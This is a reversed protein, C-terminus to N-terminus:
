EAGGALLARWLFFGFLLLAAAVVLLASRRADAKELGRGTDWILHRVGNCLHYVFALLWAGLLLKIWSQGLLDRARDYAVAGSAAAMLWYALLFLGASLAVGTIRHTISLVMTYMFRYITTFPSLPRHPM